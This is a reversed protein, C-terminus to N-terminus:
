RTSRARALELSVEDVRRDARRLPADPWARAAPCATETMRREARDRGRSRWARWARLGILGKPCCRWSLSSRSAWRCSGTGPSAGFVGGVPLVGEAAHVRVRRDGRRAPQRHRGPDDDAAGRGVRAVVAAGPQRLRGEGRCSAPSAPWRAPWCSRPSSTASLDLLGRRADAARQAPHRCRMASGRACCSWRLFAYM